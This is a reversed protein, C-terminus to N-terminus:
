VHFRKSNLFEEWFDYRSIIVNHVFTCNYFDLFQEVSKMINKLAGARRELVRDTHHERPQLHGPCHSVHLIDHGPEVGVVRLDGHGLVKDVQDVLRQSGQDLSALNVVRALAVEQHHRLSLPAAVLGPGLLVFVKMASM